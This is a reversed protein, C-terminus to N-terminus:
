RLQFTEKSAGRTGCSFERFHRRLHFCGRYSVKVGTEKRLQRLMLRSRPIDPLDFAEGTVANTLRVGCQAVESAVQPANGEVADAVGAAGTGRALAGLQGAWVFVSDAADM